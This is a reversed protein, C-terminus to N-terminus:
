KEGRLVNMQCHQCDFELRFRRGDGLVLSLPERWTPRKGGRKVCYGLSYRLCHRCQMIPGDGGKLEYASLENTGYFAASQHNSINNQYSLEKVGPNKGVRAQKVERKAQGMADILQRRMDSLQSNPIFFNFDDPVVVEACEYITDGLKSLQRVINERPSKQALQHEADFHVTVGNASLEFGDDVARLAVTIAIKRTASPKSLIREFEQDNNRYLAMGPRLGAPMKFPFIRNGAVRNARFGEFQRDSNLFCLGDGNAFSATGAVNFSDNRIEKVRGVFEGVAKPTDFSAIDPQRGNVFYTTYGRNFTRNLNPTFTYECRGKSARCYEDPHKRIYANLRESYAATVNKVYAVDKLRGEIKFSVAGAEILKDLNDSQNMDKLSLLYREHEVETGEADVLSFRMRCFQACEGRNASRQFCHQSAYCIGSYSVCLAGHVFVELEIDPVQRHIEAIEEASLERALVARSFGLQKLWRVKDATRNDTQTSAHIEFPKGDMFQLLGMDQVLVADVGIAALEDILSRVQELEDDYVITNLTVYIKADFQHAYECLHRIDDISNGVAARAGFKPAGIYVADAGHDIAAIGCALNKAPALLELPTM